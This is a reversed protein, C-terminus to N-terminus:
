HDWELPSARAQSFDIDASDDDIGAGELTCAFGEEMFVLFTMADDSGDVRAWLSGLVRDCSVPSAANEDVKFTTFFGYGTYDRHVVTAANFQRLLAEAIEPYQAAIRQLVWRELPYFTDM